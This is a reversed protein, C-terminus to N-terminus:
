PDVDLALLRNCVDRVDPVSWAIRHALRRLDESAVSGALMVVGNQARVTIGYGREGLVALLCIAARRLLRDDTVIGDANYPVPEDPTGPCIPSM